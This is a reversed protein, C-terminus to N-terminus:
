NGDSGIQLFGIKQFFWQWFLDYTFLMFGLSFMVVIVVIASRYLEQRSAWAVKDMEAEVSILFDAFVAYNVARYVVWLGICSLLVPIGLHIWPQNDFGELPGQAFAQMGLLLIAVLAVATLQRTLRGQNRKYPAVELMNAWFGATENKKAM